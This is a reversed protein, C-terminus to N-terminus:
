LKLLQQVAQELKAKDSDRFGIHMAYIKGDRGILYSTPMGRLEYTSATDGQQDFAIIFDVKIKELFADALERNKDLNVAVVELGQSKYATQLEQMWPFSKVCPKCWSAWFDLYVVKGRHEALNFEGDATTLKIDPAQTVAAGVISSLGLALFFCLSTALRMIFIGVM